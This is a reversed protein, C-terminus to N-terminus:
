YKCRAVAESLRSKANDKLVPGHCLIATAFDESLLKTASRKAQAPDNCFAKQVGVRLKRPMCGFADATFLLGDSDRLMSIHGISHGPTSILRFGSVVDGEQLIKAVPVGPPKANRSMYRLFANSQPDFGRQGSIVKAEHDTAGVEVNPAWEVMGKLGGVHDDHQHTILIRKLDEAGSDLATLADKIRQVSSAIGTDVLTWGDDNELLLVSVANKLGVADVRYVGPAVLEPASTKAM